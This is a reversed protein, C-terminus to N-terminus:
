AQRDTPKAHRAAALWISVLALSILANWGAMSIGILSWPIEDCRVVPATLIQNLLDEPAVNAISGSTCTTPGQWWKQEVGAHYFGIGAGVFGVAGGLWVILRTSQWLTVIGLAIAIGHPWRQWICMKCPALGGFYQFSFAGLLLVGSGLTALLILNRQTM